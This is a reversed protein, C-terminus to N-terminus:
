FKERAKEARQIQADIPDIGKLNEQLTLRTLRIENQIERLGNRIAIAVLLSCWVALAVWWWFM